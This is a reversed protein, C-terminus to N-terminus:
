AVAERDIHWRGELCQMRAGGIVRETAEFGHLKAALRQSLVNIFAVETVGFHRCVHDLLTSMDGEQASEATLVGVEGPQFFAFQVNSATIEVGNEAVVRTERAPLCAVFVPDDSLGSNDFLEEVVVEPM